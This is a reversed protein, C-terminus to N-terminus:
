FAFGFLLKVNLNLGVGFKPDTKNGDRFRTKEGLIVDYDMATTFAFGRPKGYGFKIGIGPSIIEGYIEYKADGEWMFYFTEKRMQGYGLGGSVFLGFNSGTILFWRAKVTAYFSQTILIGAGSEVVLSFNPRLVREYSVAIGLIDTTGFYIANKHAEEQAVVTGGLVALLVLLLLAKKM